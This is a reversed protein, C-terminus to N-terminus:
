RGGFLSRLRDRITTPPRGAGPEQKSRQQAMQAEKWLVQISRGSSRIRRAISGLLHIELAIMAKNDALVRLLEQDIILCRTAEGARIDASRPTGIAFLGVEGVIEGARSDGVDKSVGNESISAILRGSVILLAGDSPEGRRYVIDGTGFSLPRAARCLEELDEEPTSRFLYLSSLKQGDRNM